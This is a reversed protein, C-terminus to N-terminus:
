FGEGGMWCYRAQPYWKRGITTLDLRMAAFYCNQKKIEM